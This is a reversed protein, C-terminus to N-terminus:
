IESWTPHLCTATLAIQSFHGTKQPLTQLCRLLQCLVDRHQRLEPPKAPKDSSLPRKRSKQLSLLGTGLDMPSSTTLLIKAQRACARLVSNQLWLWKWSFCLWTTFHTQDPFCFCRTELNKCIRLFMGISKASVNWFWEDQPLYVIHLLDIM